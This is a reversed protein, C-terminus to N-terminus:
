KKRGKTRGKSALPVKPKFVSYNRRNVKHELYVCQIEPLAEYCDLLRAISLGGEDENKTRTTKKTRKTVAVM